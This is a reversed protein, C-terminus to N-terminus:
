SVRDIARHREAPIAVSLLRIISTQTSMGATALDHGLVSRSRWYWGRSERASGLSYEFHKVRDRGSSRSYGEELNASVSGLARVLQVAQPRLLPDRWLARADTLGLDCAFLSLRYAEMRWLPDAKLSRSVSGEWDPFHM